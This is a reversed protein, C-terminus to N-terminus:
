LSEAVQRAEDPGTPPYLMLTYRDCPDTESLVWGVAWVGDSLPGLAAPVGDLIDIVEPDEAWPEPPLSGRIVALVPNGGADVLFRISTGAISPFPDFPAESPDPQAVQAREPIAAPFYPSADCSFGNETDTDQTIAPQTTATTAPAAATTSVADADVGRTCAGLTVLVCTLLITTRVAPLSVARDVM